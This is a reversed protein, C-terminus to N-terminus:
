SRTRMEAKIPTVSVVRWENGDFDDLVRIRIHPTHRLPDQGPRMKDGRPFVTVDFQDATRLSHDQTVYHHGFGDGTSYAFPIDRIRSTHDSDPM